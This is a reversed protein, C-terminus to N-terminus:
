REVAADADGGKADRMAVLEGVRDAIADVSRPSARDEDGVDIPPLFPIAADALDGVGDIERKEVARKRRWRLHVAVDLLDRVRHHAARALQELPRARRHNMWTLWVLASSSAASTRLSPISNEVRVIVPRNARGAVVSLASFPSKLRHNSARKTHERAASSIIDATAQLSGGAAGVGGAAFWGAGGVGASGIMVTPEGVGTVGDPPATENPHGVNVTWLAVLVLM